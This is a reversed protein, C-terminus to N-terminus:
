RWETIAFPTAAGPQRIFLYSRAVRAGGHSAALQVYFRRGPFFQLTENGRLGTIATFNKPSLQGQNRLRLVDDAYQPFLARLLVAPATLPNFTTDPATKLLPRLQRFLAADMGRVRQWEYVSQLSRNRPQPLGQAQYYASEAGSTRANDDSDQWDQLSDFVINSRGPENVLALLVRQLKSPDPANLSLLATADQLQIQVGDDQGVFAQAYFNWPLATASTQLNNQSNNTVFAPVGPASSAPAGLSLAQVPRTLLNFAVEAQASRMKLWAYQHDQLLQATALQQQGLTAFLLALVGFAAALGLALILAVGRQQAM